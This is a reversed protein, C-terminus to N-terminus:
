GILKKLTRSLTKDRAVSPIEMLAAAVKKGAGHANEGALKLYVGCRALFEPHARSTEVRQLLVEVGVGDRPVLTRYTSDGGGTDTYGLVEAWFGAARELDSCDVVVVLEGRGDRYGQPTREM